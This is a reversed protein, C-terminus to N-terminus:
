KNPQEIYKSDDFALIGLFIIYLLLLGLCFSAGKNFSSGLKFILKIHIIFMVLYSVVVVIISLTAIMPSVNEILTSTIPIIITIGIMAILIWFTKTNWCIKFLIYVNYIPIIAKWGKEGAKEFIKWLFIVIFVLAIISEPMYNVVKKYINILNEM